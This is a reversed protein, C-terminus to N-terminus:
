LISKESVNASNQLDSHNTLQQTLQANAKELRCVEHELAAMYKGISTDVGRLNKRASKQLEKDVNMPKACGRGVNKGVKAERPATRM